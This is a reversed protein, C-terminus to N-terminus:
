SHPIHVYLSNKLIEEGQIRMIKVATEFLEESFTKEFEPSPGKQKVDYSPLCRKSFFKSYGTAEKFKM